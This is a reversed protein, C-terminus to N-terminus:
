LVPVVRALVLHDDEAARTPLVGAGDRPADADAPEDDMRERAHLAGEPDADRGDGIVAHAVPSMPEEALDRLVLDAGHDVLEGGLAPGLEDGLAEALVLDFEDGPETEAVRARARHGGERELGDGRQPRAEVREVLRPEAVRAGLRGHLDGRKADLRAGARRHGGDGGRGAGRALALAGRAEVD